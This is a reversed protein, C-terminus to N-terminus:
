GHIFAATINCQVSILKLKIALIMVIQVTLWHVVTACTEFYNICEKQRDGQVCLQAKFKKVPGDIYCKIKFAWTHPVYEWCDFQQILTVKESAQPYPLHVAKRSPGNVNDFAIQCISNWNTTKMEGSGKKPYPGANQWAESV